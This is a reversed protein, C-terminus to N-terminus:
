EEVDLFETNDQKIQRKRGLAAGFVIALGVGLGVNHNAIGIAAGIAIGAASFPFNWRQKLDAM